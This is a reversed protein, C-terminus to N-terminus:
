ERIHEGQCEIVQELRSRLSEIGRAYFAPSKSTFYGEVADILERETEFNKGRLHTKLNKFLYYDSPAIDPSYPPHELTEFRYKNFLAVVNDATHISANEQLIIPRKSLLGYKTKPIAERLKEILKAYYVSDMGKKRQQKFFDVLIIRRRDWFVTVMVKM